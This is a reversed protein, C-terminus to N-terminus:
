EVAVMHTLKKVLTWVLKACSDGRSAWPFQIDRNGSTLEHLGGATPLQILVLDHADSNAMDFLKDDVHRRLRSRSPQQVRLSVAVSTKFLRERTRQGFGHRALRGM